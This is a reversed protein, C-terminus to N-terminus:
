DIIDKLYAGDISEDFILEFKNSSYPNEPVQCRKTKPWKQM